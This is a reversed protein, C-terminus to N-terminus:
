FFVKLCIFISACSDLIWLICCFCYLSSLRYHYKDRELLFIEFLCDLYISLPILFFNSYAFGLNLLFSIIFILASIFLSFFCFLDSFSLNIEKFLYLVVSLGKTLSMLFFLFFSFFSLSIFYSIFASFSCHSGYFNLPDYFFVVSSWKVM